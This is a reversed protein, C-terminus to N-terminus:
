ETKILDVKSKIERLLQLIEKQDASIEKILTRDSKDTPYPTAVPDKGALANMAFALIGAMLCGTLFISKTKM